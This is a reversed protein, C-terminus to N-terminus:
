SLAKEAAIKAARKMKLCALSDGEVFEFSEEYAPRTGMTGVSSFSITFRRKSKQLRDLRTRSAYGRKMLECQIETVSMADLDNM